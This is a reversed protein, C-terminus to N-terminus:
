CIAVPQPPDCTKRSTAPVFTAERLLHQSNLRCPAFLPEELRKLFLSSVSLFSHPTWHMRTTPLKPYSFGKDLFFFNLTFHIQRGFGMLFLAATRVPLHSHSQGYIDLLRRIARNRQLLSSFLTPDHSFPSGLQRSNQHPAINAAPTFHCTPLIRPLTSTSESPHRYLSHSPSPPKKSHPCPHYATDIPPPPPFSFCFLCKKLRSSFRLM